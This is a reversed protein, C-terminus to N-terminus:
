GILWIVQNVADVLEARTEDDVPNSLAERIEGLLELADYYEKETIPM